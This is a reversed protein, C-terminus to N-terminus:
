TAMASVIPTIAPINTSDENIGWSCL